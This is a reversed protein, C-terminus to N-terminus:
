VRSGSGVDQQLGPFDLPGSFAPCIARIQEDTVPEPHQQLDEVTKTVFWRVEAVTYHYLERSIHSNIAKQIREIREEPIALKSM